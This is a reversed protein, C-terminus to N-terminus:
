SDPDGVELTYQNGYDRDNCGLCHNDWRLSEYVSAKM